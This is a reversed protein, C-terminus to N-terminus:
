RSFFIHPSLTLLCLPGCRTGPGHYTSDKVRVADRHPVPAREWKGTHLSLDPWVVHAIRTPCLPQFPGWNGGLRSGKGGM